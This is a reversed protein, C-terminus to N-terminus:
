SLILSIDYECIFFLTTNLVPVLSQKSFLNNIQNLLVVEDINDYAHIIDDSIKKTAIYEAKKINEHILYNFIDRTYKRIDTLFSEEEVIRKYQSGKSTMIESIMLYRKLYEPDPFSKFHKFSEISPYNIYLKGKDTSECFYNMMISIKKVDFQHDQPEYDFILLIDSYEHATLIDNQDQNIGKEKLTLLFDLDELEDRSDKFIRDYLDYINTTYTYIQKKSVEINYIKFLQNVM